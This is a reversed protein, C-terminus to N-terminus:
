GFGDGRLRDLQRRERKNPPQKSPQYGTEQLPPTQDPRVSPQTIEEFLEAAESAPGRRVGPDRVTLIRIGSRLSITLTDGPRLIRAANDIKDRNIRVAGSQVLKQALSRSKVVRAFFLWKDVRQGGEAM